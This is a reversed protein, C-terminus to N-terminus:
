RALPEPYVGIVLVMHVTIALILWATTKPTIAAHLSVASVGVLTVEPKWGRLWNSWWRWHRSKFIQVAVFQAYGEGFHEPALNHLSRGPTPQPKSRLIGVTVTGAVAATWEFALHQRVPRRPNQVTARNRVPQVYQVVAAIAVTGVTNARIM